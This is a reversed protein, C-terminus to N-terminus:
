ERLVLPPFSSVIEAHFVPSAVPSKCMHRTLLGLDLAKTLVDSINIETSVKFVSVRHNDALDTAAFVPVICARDKLEKVLPLLAREASSPAGSLLLSLVNAADCGIGIRISKYFPQICTTFYIAADLADKLALFEARTTSRAVRPQRRSKHMLPFGNIFLIWASQPHPSATNGFSADGYVVGTLEDPSDFAHIHIGLSSNTRLYRFIQFLLRFARETPAAMFRSLYSYALAMDPRTCNAVYGVQGLLTYFLSAGRSNLPPSMNDEHTSGVPLPKDAPKFSSGIHEPPLSLSSIYDTQHTFVGDTTVEFQVSVFRGETLETYDGCTIFDKLPDVLSTADEGIGLILLDDVYTAVIGCLEGDKNDLFWVGPFLGTTWGLETLKSVLFDEFVRGADPLGYVAKQLVWLYQGHDPHDSPSIAALPPRDTPLPAQLYAQVIDAKQLSLPVGQRKCADLALQFVCRVADPPCLHTTVVLGDRSVRNSLIVTRTKFGRSGDDKLKSTRVCMLPVRPVDAPVESIIRRQYVKRTLWGEDEKRNAFSVLELVLEKESNSLHKLSVPQHTTAVHVSTEVFSLFAVASAVAPDHEFAGPYQGFSCGQVGSSLASCVSSPLRFGRGGRCSDMEFGSAVVKDHLLEVLEAKRKKARTDYTVYAGGSSYYGPAWQRRSLVCRQYTEWAHVEYKITDSDHPGPLVRCIEGVWLLGAEPSRGVIMTGPELPGSPVSLPSSSSSFPNETGSCSSFSSLVPVLVSSDIVGAVSSSSPTPSPTTTSTMETPPPVAAPRLQHPSATTNQPIFSSGTAEIEYFHANEARVVRYLYWVPGCKYEQGSRGGSGSAGVNYMVTKGVSYTHLSSPPPPRDASLFQRLCPLAPPLSAEDHRSLAGRVSMRNNLRRVAKDVVTPWQFPSLGRELLISRVSVLVDRHWREVISNGDKYGSPSFTLRIGHKECFEILPAGAFESGQDYQIERLIGFCPVWVTELFTM